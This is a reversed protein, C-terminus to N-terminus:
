YHHQEIYAHLESKTIKIIVAESNKFQNLAYAKAIDENHTPALVRVTFKSHPEQGRSTVDGCQDRYIVTRTYDIEIEYISHDRLGM